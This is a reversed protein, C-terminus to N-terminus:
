WLDESFLERPHTTQEKLQRSGRAVDRAMERGVFIGTSTLFGQDNPGCSRADAPRMARLIDAHRAPKPLSLTLGNCRVAAAVIRM